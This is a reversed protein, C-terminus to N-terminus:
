RGAGGSGEELGNVFGGKYKTGDTLILTGQGNFKNDKWNAKTPTASTGNTFAMAMASTTKGNDTM